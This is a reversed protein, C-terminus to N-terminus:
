VPGSRALWTDRGRKRRREARAEAEDPTSGCNPTLDAFQVAVHLRARGCSERSCPTHAIAILTVSRFLRQTVVEVTPYMASASVPQISDIVAAPHYSWKYRAPVDRMSGNASRSAIMPM